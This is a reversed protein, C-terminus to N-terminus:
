HLERMRQREAKDAQHQSWLVEYDEDTLDPRVRRCVDRWEDKNMEYLRVPDHNM